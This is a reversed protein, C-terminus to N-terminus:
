SAAPSRPLCLPHPVLQNALQGSSLEEAQGAGGAATPRGRLSAPLRSTSSSPVPRVPMVLLMAWVKVAGPYAWRAPMQDRGSLGGLGARSPGAM